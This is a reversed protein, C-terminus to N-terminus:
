KVTIFIEYDKPAVIEKEDGNEDEVTKTENGLAKLTDASEIIKSVTGNNWVKHKTKLIDFGQEHAVNIETEISGDKTPEKVIDEPTDNCATVFISLAFLLIKHLKM